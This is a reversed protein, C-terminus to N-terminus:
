DPQLFVLRAAWTTIVSAARCVGHPTWDVIIPPETLWGARKAGTLAKDLDSVPFLFAAWGRQDPLDNRFDPGTCPYEILEISGEMRGQQQVISLKVVQNRAIEQPLGMVNRGDAHTLETAVVVKWGLADSFVSTAKRCDDVVIVSNFLNSAPGAVHDYGELPPAVRETVAFCLSDGDHVLVERVEFGGMNFDVVPAFCSFGCETFRDRVQEIPGLSRLGADFWGGVDWPQAGLRRPGASGGARSLLRVQGRECQPQGLVICNWNDASDIGLLALMAHDARGSFREGYGLAKELRQATTRADAVIAVAEQYGNDRAIM